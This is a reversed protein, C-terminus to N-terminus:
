GRALSAPLPARADPAAGSALRLGELTCRAAQESEGMENLVEALRQYGDTSPAAALASELHTRAQGWLRNRQCLEGLAYLLAPEPGRLRLWSEARDLQARADGGDVRGYLRVLTPDWDHKLAARLLKEAEVGLGAEALNRAHLGLLAPDRHAAKPLRQWAGRVGEATRPAGDLVALHVRRETQALAAPELAKARRLEPLLELAAGWDGARLQAELLLRLVQPHRPEGARLAGLSERAELARGQELLLGARSLGVALGAGELAEAQRLYGEGREGAGQHRAAEAAGLYCLLPQGSENVSKLLLREAQPYRGEALAHLGRSLLATGRGERRTASWRSLRRPLRWAGGLLRLAFWLLFAASLLALAFAVPTTQVVWDGLGIAVFGPYQDLTRALLVAAVLTILATFLLRM